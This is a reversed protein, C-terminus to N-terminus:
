VTIEKSLPDEKLFLLDVNQEFVTSDSLHHCYDVNTEGPNICTISNRDSPAHSFSFTSSTPPLIGKQRHTSQITNERKNDNFDKPRIQDILM